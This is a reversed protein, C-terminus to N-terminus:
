FLSIISFDKLKLEAKFKQTDFSKPYKAYEFYATGHQFCSILGYKDLINGGGIIEKELMSKISGEYVVEIKECKALDEYLKSYDEKTKEHFDFSRYIAAFIETPNDAMTETTLLREEDQCFINFKTDKESQKDVYVFFVHTTNYKELEKKIEQTLTYRNVEAKVKVKEELFLKIKQWYDDEVEYTKRLADIYSLIETSKTHILNFNKQGHQILGIAAAEILLFHGLLRSIISEWKRFTQERRQKDTQRDLEIRIPNTEKHKLVSLLTYTLEITRHMEYAKKFNLSSEIGPRQICDQLYRLLVLAPTIVQRIFNIEAMKIEMHKIHKGIQVGLRNVKSRLQRLKKAMPDNDAATTITIIGKFIETLGTLANLRKLWTESTKTGPVKAELGKIGFNLLIQAVEISKSLYDLISMKEKDSMESTSSTVKNIRLLGPVSSSPMLEASRTSKKLSKEHVIVNEVSYVELEKHIESM